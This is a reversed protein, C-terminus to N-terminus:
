DNRDEKTTSNPNLKKRANLLRESIDPDNIENLKTLNAIFLERAIADLSTNIMMLTKAIEIIAAQSNDSM